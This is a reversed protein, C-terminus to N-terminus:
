TFIALISGIKLSFGHRGRGIRQEIEGRDDRDERNEVKQENARLLLLLLIVLHHQLRELKDVQLEMVMHTGGKLDLGLNVLRKPRERLLELKAREAPELQYWNISPYLLFVSGVILALLGLWKTQTKTM